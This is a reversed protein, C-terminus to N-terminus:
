FQKLVEILNIAFALGFFRMSKVIGVLQRRPDVELKDSTRYNRFRPILRPVRATYSEYETGFLVLLRKEESRVVLFYNVCYVVLFVIVLILRNTIIVVGLGGLGAFLYLPNRCVSYPGDQCLQKSKRGFLYSGCWLTGITAVAILIYGAIEGLGYIPRKEGSFGNFIVTAFIFSWLALNVWGRHRELPNKEPHQTELASKMSPQGELASKM